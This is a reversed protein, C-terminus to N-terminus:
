GVHDHRRFKRRGGAAVAVPSTISSERSGTRLEPVPSDRCFYGKGAQVEGERFELQRAQDRDDVRVVLASNPDGPFNAHLLIAEDSIPVAVIRQVFDFVLGALGAGSM